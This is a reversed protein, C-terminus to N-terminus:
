VVEYLGKLRRLMTHYAEHKAKGMRDSEIEEFEDAITVAVDDPVLRDAIPFLINNEKHIHSRLTDRYTHAHERIATLADGEGQHLEDLGELMARVHRRGANREALMVGIPERECKTGRRELEPFLFDEEKRHHYRDVFGKFFDLLQDLHKPALENKAALAAVVEELLRLAVLVVTHEAILEKTPKMESGESRADGEVAKSKQM